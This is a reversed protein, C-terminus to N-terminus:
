GSITNKVVWDLPDGEYKEFSLDQNDDIMIRWTGSVTGSIVSHDAYYYFHQQVCGDIM